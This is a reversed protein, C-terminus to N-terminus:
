TKRGNGPALKKKVRCCPQERGVAPEIRTVTVKQFGNHTWVLVRDGPLIDQRKPKDPTLQWAYEKGGDKHKAYLIYPAPTRSKASEIETRRMQSGRERQKELPKKPTSPPHPISGLNYTCFMVKGDVAYRIIPIIPNSMGLVKELSKCFAENWEAHRNYTENPIFTYLYTHEPTIHWFNIWSGPDQCDWHQRAAYRVGNVDPSSCYKWEGM